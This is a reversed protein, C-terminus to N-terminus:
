APCYTLSQPPPLEPLQMVHVPQGAPFDRVPHLPVDAPAHVVQPAPFYLVEDPESAYADPDVHMVHPPHGAPFYRLPQPPLEPPLQEVQGEPVNLDFVPEPPQLLQRLPFYEGLWPAVECMAHM